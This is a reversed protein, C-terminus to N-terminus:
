LLVPSPSSTNANVCPCGFQHSVITAVKKSGPTPAQPTVLEASSWMTATDASNKSLKGYALLRSLDGDEKSRLDATACSRIRVLVRNTSPSRRNMTLRLCAQNTWMSVVVIASPDFVILTWIVSRQPPHLPGVSRSKEGDAKLLSASGLTPRIGM